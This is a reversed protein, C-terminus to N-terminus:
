AHADHLTSPTHLLLFCYGSALLAKRCRPLPQNETSTTRLRSRQKPVRHCSAQWLRSHLPIPWFDACIRKSNNWGKTGVNQMPQTRYGICDWPISTLVQQSIDALNGDEPHHAARREHEHQGALCILHAKRLRARHMHLSATPPIPNTCPLDQPQCLATKSPNNRRLNLTMTLRHFHLHSSPAQLQGHYVLYVVTPM